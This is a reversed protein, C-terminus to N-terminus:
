RARKFRTAFNHVYQSGDGENTDNDSIVYGITEFWYLGVGTSKLNQIANEIQFHDAAVMEEIDQEAVGGYDVTILCGVEMIEANCTMPGDEFPIMDDWRITYRRLSDTPKSKRQYPRFKSDRGRQFVPTLGNITVIFLAKLETLTTPESM